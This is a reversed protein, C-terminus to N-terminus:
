ATMRFHMSTSLFHLCLPQMYDAACLPLLSHFLYFLCKKLFTLPKGPTKVKWGLPCACRIVGIHADCLCYTLLFKGLPTVPLILFRISIKVRRFEIKLSFLESPLLFSRVNQSFQVFIYSLLPNLCTFM